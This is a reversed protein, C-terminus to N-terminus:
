LNTERTTFYQRLKYGLFFHIPGQQFRRPSSVLEMSPLYRVEGCTRLNRALGVETQSLGGRLPYGGSLRYHKRRFAVNGGIVFLIPIKTMRQIDILILQMAAAYLKGWLPMGSEYRYRGTVAAVKGATDASFAEYISSLWTSPPVCDADLVVVIEGQAALVGCHKAQLQGVKDERIVRVPFQNAISSTPDTSANDVVIVEYAHSFNQRQLATLCRRVVLSENRAPIVVSIALGHL